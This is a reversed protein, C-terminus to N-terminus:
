LDGVICNIKGNVNKVTIVAGTLDYGNVNEEILGAEIVDDADIDESEGEQINYENIIVYTCVAKELLKKTEEKQIEKQDDLTKIFNAVFLTTAAAILTITVILEILTFGKKNM